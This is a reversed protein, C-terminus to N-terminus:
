WLRLSKFLNTAPTKRIQLKIQITTGMGPQSSLTLKAGIEEAYHRLLFLGCHDTASYTQAETDFGKGNDRVILTLSEADAIVLLEAETAESHKYINSVATRAMRFLTLAVEAKIKRDDGFILLRLQPGAPKANYWEAMVGLEDILGRELTPPELRMTIARLESRVKSLLRELQDNPDTLLFRTAYLDQLPGDHIDSALDIREKERARELQHALKHHHALRLQTAGIISGLTWFPTM